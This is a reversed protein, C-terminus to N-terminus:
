NIVPVILRACGSNYTGMVAVEASMLHDHANKICTEDDWAGKAETADDYTRVSVTFRGAKGGQQDLYLRIARDTEGSVDKAGGQLPLDTAIQVSQVGSGGSSPGAARSAEGSGCGTLLIPVAVLVAGAIPRRM